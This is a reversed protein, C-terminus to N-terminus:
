FITEIKKFVRLRQTLIRYLKNNVLTQSSIIFEYKNKCNVFLLHNKHIYYIYKFKDNFHMYSKTSLVEFLALM